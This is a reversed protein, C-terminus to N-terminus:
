VEDNLVVKAYTRLGQKQRTELIITAMHTINEHCIRVPPVPGCGPAFPPGLSGSHHMQEGPPASLCTKRAVQNYHFVDLPYRHKSELALATLFHTLTLLPSSTYIDSTKCIGPM